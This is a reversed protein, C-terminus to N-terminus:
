AADLHSSIRDLMGLAHEKTDANAVFLLRNGHERVAHHKGPMPSVAFEKERTSENGLFHARMRAFAERRAAESEYEAVIVSFEPQGVRYRAIAAGEGEELGFLDQAAVYVQNSIGLRGRAFVASRAVMNEPPLLKMIQPEDKTTSGIKQDIAKALALFEDAFIEGPGMKRIDVNYRDRWFNLGNSHVIGEGGVQIQSLTPHRGYSYIGFGGAVDGMDYIEISVAKDGKVYHQVVLTVFGYEYYIDAGGNIHEFLEEGSFSLPEGKKQWGEVDGDAPLLRVVAQEEAVAPASSESESSAAGGSCCALCALLLFGIFTQSRAFSESLLRKSSWM